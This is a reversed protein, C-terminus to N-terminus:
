SEMPKTLHHFLDDDADKENIVKGRVSHCTDHITQKDKSRLHHWSPLTQKEVLLRYSCTPPMFYVEAINDPTLSVCNPVKQSRSSYCQCLCNDSDLYQCVVNTDYIIGDDEDELKLTCCKACGDCLSEWESQSFESINKTEWFNKKSSVSPDSM